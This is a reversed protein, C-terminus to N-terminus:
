FRESNSKDVLNEIGHVEERIDVALAQAEFMVESSFMKALEQSFLAALYRNCFSEVVVPRNM